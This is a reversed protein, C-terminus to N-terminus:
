GTQYAGHVMSAYRPHTHEGIFWLKNDIPQRLQIIDEMTTGVKSFSYSGMSFQDTDWSTIKLNRVSIKKNKFFKQMSSAIQSAIQDNSLKRLQNISSGSLFFCLINKDPSPVVSAIPFQNTATNKTVFNLWGVKPGWFNQEFSVYLKNM